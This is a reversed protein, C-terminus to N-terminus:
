RSKKKKYAEWMLLFLESKSGKKFGFKRGAEEGFKDLIEIPVSFEIKGKVIPKGRPPIDLNNNTQNRQSTSGNSQKLQKPLPAMGKDAISKLKSVDVM